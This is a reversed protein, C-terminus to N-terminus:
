ASLLFRDLAELAEPTKASADYIVEEPEGGQFLLFLIARGHEPHRIIIAGQEVARVADVATTPTFTDRMPEDGGDDVAVISWGSGVLASLTRVAYTRETM